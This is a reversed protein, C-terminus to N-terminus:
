LPFRDLYSIEDIKRENVWQALEDHRPVWV